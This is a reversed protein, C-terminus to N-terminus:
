VAEKGEARRRNWALRILFLQLVLIALMLGRSAWRVARREPTEDAMLLTPVADQVIWWGMMIILFLPTVYTLVFKFFRPIRIQSGAHLEDWMRDPGLVWVFLITEVLALVVLGFTGAWYDWEDLFGRTNYVIHLIGIVLAIAALSWATRKRTWGFNEEVFSLAPTAMAVSSTIGAVFLLGFW